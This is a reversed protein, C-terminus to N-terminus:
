VQRSVEVGQSAIDNATKGTLNNWTDKLFGGVKNVTTTFRSAM